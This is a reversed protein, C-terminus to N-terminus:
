IQKLFYEKNENFVSKYIISDKDFARDVALVAHLHDIEHQLLESHEQNIKEWAHFRGQLDQYQISITKHRELKVSLDPFSMCDDWMLFRSESKFTIVPNLIVFPGEGLNLAIIKKSIGIQPAAIGRGFSHFRRFDELTNQLEKINDKTAASLPFAVEEAQTRLRPDGLLLVKNKMESNYNNMQKSIYLNRKFLSLSGVVPLYKSKV